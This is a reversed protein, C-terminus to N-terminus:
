LDAEQRVPEQAIDGTQNEMVLSSKEAAYASISRSSKRTSVNLISRTISEKANTAASNRQSSTDQNWEREM